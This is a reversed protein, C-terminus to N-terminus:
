VKTWQLLYPPSFHAFVGLPKGQQDSTILHRM